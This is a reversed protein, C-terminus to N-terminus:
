IRTTAFATIAVAIADIEDDQKIEKPIDILKSVM